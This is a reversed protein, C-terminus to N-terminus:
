LVKSQKQVFDLPKITVKDAKQADIQLRRKNKQSDEIMLHLDPMYAGFICSLNSAIHEVLDVNTATLTQLALNVLRMHEYMERSQYFEKIQGLIQSNSDDPKEGEAPKKESRKLIEKYITNFLQFIHKLGTIKERQDVLIARLQSEQAADLKLHVTTEDQISDNKVLESYQSSQRSLQLEFMDVDKREELDAKNPTAM